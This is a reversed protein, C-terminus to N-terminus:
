DILLSTRNPKRQINWENLISIKEEESLKTIQHANIIAYFNQVSTELYMNAEKIWGTKDYIFIEELDIDLDAKADITHTINRILKTFAKKDFKQDNITITNQIKFDENNEVDSKIIANLDVEGFYGKLNLETETIENKEYYGNFFTRLFSYGLFQEEFRQKDNLLLTTQNIMENAGKQKYKNQLLTKFKDNWKRKIEKFNEISLFNGNIDTKIVLENQVWELDAIWKHILATEEMQQNILLYKFIMETETKELLSFEFLRFHRYETIKDGLIVRSATVSQYINPKEFQKIELKMM